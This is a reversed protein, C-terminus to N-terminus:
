CYTGCLPNCLYIYALDETTPRALLLLCGSFYFIGNQRWRQRLGRRRRASIVKHSAMGVGVMTLYTLGFRSYFRKNGFDPVVATKARPAIIKEMVVTTAPPQAVWVSRVCIGVSIPACQLVVYICMVEQCELRRSLPFSLSRFLSSLLLPISALRTSTQKRRWKRISIDCGKTGSGKCLCVYVSPEWSLFGHVDNTSMLM